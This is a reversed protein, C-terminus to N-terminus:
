ITDILLQWLMLFTKNRLSTVVPSSPLNWGVSVCIVAIYIMAIYYSDIFDFKIISLCVCVCPMYVVYWATISGVNPQHSLIKRCASRPMALVRACWFLCHVDSVIKWRAVFSHWQWSRAAYRFISLSIGMCFFNEQWVRLVIYQSTFLFNLSARKYSCVSVTWSLPLAIFIHSQNRQQENDKLWM